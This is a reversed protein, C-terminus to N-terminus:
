KIYLDVEFMRNWPHSLHLEESTIDQLCNFQGLLVKLKELEIEVVLDHKDMLDFYNLGLLPLQDNTVDMRIIGQYFCDELVHNLINIKTANNIDNNIMGSALVTGITNAHTNWGAYAYLKDFLNKNDLSKVLQMDGGNSYAVDAVMVRKGSDVLYKIKSVFYKINRFSDYQLDRKTFQDWSEQMKNGPSNLMLVYDAQLEDNVIIGGIVDIHHKLTEYMPRDEYLPTLQPGLVSSYEVYISPTISYHDNYARLLLSCGVEDAGPYIYVQDDLGLKIIEDKIVKQDIATYGFPASDDQFIVLMEFVRNSLYSVVNTLNNNNIDRRTEYDFVFEKPIAKLSLLEKEEDETIFGREKKNTLYKTKYIEYGYEDYYDPEEDSSSYGPTRMISSFPYIKLNPNLEKLKSLVNLRSEVVELTEKHLRSPILGGYCLMDISCILVDCDSIKSILFDSIEDTDATTKKDGLISIPPVILEINSNIKAIDQPYRLNCPREDLPLYLVKM